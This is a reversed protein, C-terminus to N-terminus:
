RSAKRIGFWWLTIGVAVEIFAAFIVEAQGMINTPTASFWVLWLFFGSYALTLMPRLVGRIFAGIKSTDEFATTTDHTYAATMIASEAKANAEDARAMATINASNAESEARIREKQVELELSKRQEKALELQDSTENKKEYIDAARSIITGLLGVIAGFVGPVM